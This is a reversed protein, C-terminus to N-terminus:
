YIHGVQRSQEHLALAFKELPGLKDPDVVLTRMLLNRARAADRNFLGLQRYRDQPRRRNWAHMAERPTGKFEAMFMALRVQKDKLLRPRKGLLLLRQKAYIESVERPSVSIDVTLTMRVLSPAVSNILRGVMVMPVPPPEDTLVFMTAWAENWWYDRALDLSIARLRELTPSCVPVAHAYESDSAVYFLTETSFRVCGLPVTQLPPTVVYHDGQITFEPKPGTAITVLQGYQGRHTDAERRIWATADELKLLKGSLESDRFARVDDRHRAEDALLLTIAQARLQHGSLRRQRRKTAPRPLLAPQGLSELEAVRRALRDYTLGQELESIWHDKVLLDWMQDTVPRGLQRQLKLRIARHQQNM